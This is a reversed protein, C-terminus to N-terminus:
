RITNGSGRNNEDKWDDWRRKEALQRQAVEDDDSDEDEGDANQKASVGGQQKEREAEALRQAQIEGWEEVTYTPLSHSPRFVADREKERENVIRFTNPMGPVSPPARPKAREARERPDHGRARQKQAWRLIEMERTLMGHTDLARRVASQLIVLTAERMSEEDAEADIDTDHSRAHEFLAMLRREAEKEAKYRRIKEDRTIAPPAEQREAADGLMRDRDPKDLLSLRDVSTFFATLYESARNLHQLRDDPAGQWAAHTCATLFPLLVFKLHSTAIEDLEENSSIVSANSVNAALESFAGLALDAPQQEQQERTTSLTTSSPAATQFHTPSPTIRSLATANASSLSLNALHELAPWSDPTRNFLTIARAFQENLTLDSFSTM